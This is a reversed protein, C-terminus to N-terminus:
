NATVAYLTITDNQYVATLYPAADPQFDGLAQERPGFWLYRVNFQHLLAQRQADPTAADFFQAVATVKGEYDATEAWHGLMVPHGTYAAVLNGTQYDGLVVARNDEQVRLWEVAALEDAPRFLPDPQTLAAIRSVDALLLINSLSMLLLFLAVIFRNLKPTTYRPNAIVRQWVRTQQLRPLLVEVLGAASLIAFAVHVGQIFRRQPGLPAYILLVVAGLWCWLIAFHPRSSPRKWMVLGALVLMVGFGVLYHPWPPSPTGAQADWIRFINNTQWVYLFYLYLPAPILFLLATQFGALWPLTRLKFLLYLFYLIATVAVIYLLFPYAIGLLLNGLGALVAVTWIRRNADRGDLAHDGIRKLALMDCLILATGLAIHPYTLGTFFIHAGPDKFDLPFADLWYAQGSLFLLWGLGSGFLALLYATWRTLRDPLFVATFWFITMFLVFAALVRSIHWVATLSLGTFRALQGLWVYFIGIAAAPHPEPTFPITYLWNGQVGQWMKAWYTLSDEPNMILHMYVRGDSVTVSGLWYPLLTLVATGLAVGIAWLWERRSTNARLAM